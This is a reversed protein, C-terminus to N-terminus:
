KTCPRRRHDPKMLLAAFLMINGTMMIEIVQQVLIHLSGADGAIVIAIQETRGGSFGAAQCAFGKALLVGIADDLAPRFAGAYLRADAIRQQHQLVSIHLGAKSIISGFLPETHICLVGFGLDKIDEQAVVGM